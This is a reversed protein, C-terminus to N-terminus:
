RVLSIKTRLDPIQQILLLYNEIAHYLLKLSTSLNSLIHDYLAIKM